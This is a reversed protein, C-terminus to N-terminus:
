NPYSLAPTTEATDDEDNNDQDDGGDDGDDSPSMEQGDAEPSPSLEPSEPPSESPTETPSEVPSEEPSSPEEGPSSVPFEPSPLEESLSVDFIPSLEATTSNLGQAALYHYPLKQGIPLAYVTPTVAPPAAPALLKRSAPQMGENDTLNLAYGFNIQEDVLMTVLSQYELLQETGVSCGTCVCPSEAVHHLTFCACVSRVASNILVGASLQLSAAGICLDAQKSVSLAWYVCSLLLVADDGLSM